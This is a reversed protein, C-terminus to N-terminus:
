TLFEELAMFQRYLSEEAFCRWEFVIPINLFKKRHHRLLRIQWSDLSSVLHSDEKGDNDSAHFEFIKDPYRRFLKDIVTFKDFRLRTAAVNLHGLDLLLGVNPKKKYIELFEFIDEQSELFSHTQDFFPFLNEIGIRIDRRKISALLLDIAQYFDKGTAYEEDIGAPESKEYFKGNRERLMSTNFGSHLTYLSSGLQATLEIADKILRFSKERLSNDKSAINIVFNEPLPPFYNHLLYNVKYRKRLNFLDNKIGPYFKMGGGLEINLFGLRVLEGIVDRM